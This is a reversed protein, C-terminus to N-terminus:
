KVTRLCQGQMCQCGTSVGNCAPCFSRDRFSDKSNWCTETGALCATDSVGTCPKGWCEAVEEGPGAPPPLTGTLVRKKCAFGDVTPVNPIPPWRTLADDIFARNLPVDVRTWLWRRTGLPACLSFGYSLVGMIAELGTEVSGSNTTMSLGTRMLPGGSDGACPFSNTDTQVTGEITAEIPPHITLVPPTTSVRLRSSQELTVPDTVTPAGWGYFRVNPWNPNPTVISLRKAGNQELRPELQVDDFHRVYLLALDHRAGLSRLYCTGDPPCYIPNSERSRGHWNGHVYARAWIPDIVYPRDGSHTGKIKWLGYDDWAPQCNARSIGRQLCLNIAAGSICHAATLIWNRNIFTGTCSLTVPKGNARNIIKDDEPVTAGTTPDTNWSADGFAALEFELLVVPHNIVDM